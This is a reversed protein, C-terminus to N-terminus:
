GFFHKPAALICTASHRIHERMAIEATRPNGAVIANVIRTHDARSIKIQDPYLLVKNFQLRFIPLRIQNLAGAIEQNGSLKLILSHFENNYADYSAAIKSRAGPVRELKNLARKGESGIRAAASYAAFGELVERLELFDTAQRRSMRVISAGRFREWVVFGEAALRRLAERVSGRSVSLDQMLTSEILRQGPAYLADRIRDKVALIVRDVASPASDLM